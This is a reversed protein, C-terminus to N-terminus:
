FSPFSLLRLQGLFKITSEKRHKCQKVVVDLDVMRSPAYWEAHAIVTIKVVAEARGDMVFPALDHRSSSVINTPIDPDDSYYYVANPVSCDFKFHLAEGPLCRALDVSITPVPTAEIKITLQSIESPIWGPAVAMARIISTNKSDLNLNPKNADSYVKTGGIAGKGEYMWALNPDLARPRSGDTTFQIENCSGCGSITVTGPADRAILPQPLQRLLIDISSEESAVWGVKESYARIHLGDSPVWVKTPLGSTSIVFQKTNAEGPIPDSHDLTYFKDADPPHTEIALAVYAGGDALSGPVFTTFITPKSIHDRTVKLEATESPIWGPAYARSKVDFVGPIDMSVASESEGSFLASSVTPDSGDITYRLEASAHDECQLKVVESDEEWIRPRPLQQVDYSCIESEPSEILTDVIRCTFDFDGRHVSFSKALVMISEPSAFTFMPRNVPDWKLSSERPLSGDITYFIDVAFLPDTSQIGSAIDLRLIGELGSSEIPMLTAAPMPLEGVIVCTVMSDYFGPKRGIAMYTTVRGPSLVPPKNPNYWFTNRNNGGATPPTGNTTFYIHCGETESGMVVLDEKLSIAPPSIRDGTNTGQYHGQQAVAETSFFIDPRPDPVEEVPELLDTDHESQVAGLYEDVTMPPRKFKIPQMKPPPGVVIGTDDNDSGNRNDNDNLVVLKSPDGARLRKVDSSSVHLPAVVYIAVSYFVSLAFSVVLLVEAVQVTKTSNEQAAEWTSREGCGFCDIRLDANPFFAPVAALIPVRVFVIFVALLRFTEEGRKIFSLEQHQDGKSADFKQDPPIQYAVPVGGVSVIRVQRTPVISNLAWARMRGARSYQGERITSWFAMPCAKPLLFGFAASFLVIWAFLSVAIASMLWVTVSDTYSPLTTACCGLRAAIGEICEFCTGLTADCAACCNPGPAACQLDSELIGVSDSEPIGGYNGHWNQGSVSLSTILLIGDLVALGVAVLGIMRLRRAEQDLGTQSHSLLCRASVSGEEFADVEFQVPKYSNKTSGGVSVGNYISAGKPPDSKDIGFANNRALQLGDPNRTPKAQLKPVKEGKRQKAKEAQKKEYRDLADEASLGDEDMYRKMAKAKRADGKTLIPGGSPGNSAPPAPSKDVASGSGEFGLYVSARRVPDTVKLVCVAESAKILATVSEKALGAVSKGNVSLILAGVEISGEKEANSGPRVKSVVISGDGGKKFGIGLPTPVSVLYSSEAM